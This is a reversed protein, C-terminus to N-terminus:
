LKQSHHVLHQSRQLQFVSGTEPSPLSSQAVAHLFVDSVHGARYVMVYWRSLMVSYFTPTRQTVGMPTLYVSTIPKLYSMVTKDIAKVKRELPAPNLFSEM